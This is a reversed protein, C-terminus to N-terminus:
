DFTLLYPEGIPADNKIRRCECEMNRKSIVTDGDIYKYARCEELTAGLKRIWYRRREEMNTYDNLVELICLEISLPDIKLVRIKNYLSCTTLANKACVRHGWRKKAISRYTGGVFIDENTLQIKYIFM